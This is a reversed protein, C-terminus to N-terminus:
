WTAIRFCSQPLYFSLVNQHKLVSPLQKSRVKQCFKESLFRNTFVQAFCVQVFHFKINWIIPSRKVTFLIEVKRKCFGSFGFIGKVVSLTFDFFNLSDNRLDLLFDSISLIHLLLGDFFNTVSAQNLVHDGLNSCSLFSSFITLDKLKFDFRIM